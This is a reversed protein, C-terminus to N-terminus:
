VKSMEDAKANAPRPLNDTPFANPNPIAPLNTRDFETPNAPMPLRALAEL